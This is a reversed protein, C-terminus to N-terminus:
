DARLKRWEAQADELENWGNDPIGRISDVLQVLPLDAFQEFSQIHFEELTWRGDDGRKWRGKGSLRVHQDWLPALKGAVDRTTVCKQQEGEDTKIWVQVSDDIGKVGVVIGDLTGVEHVIAEQALPTKVGPFNVLTAGNKRAIKGSANDRRLLVNLRRHPEIMDLPMETGGILRLRTEIKRTTSAPAWFELVASGKRVKSFHVQDPHGLLPRLADVYEVFRGLRLTEPTLSDIRFDYFAATKTM